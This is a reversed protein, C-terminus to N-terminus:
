ALYVFQCNSHEKIEDITLSTSCKWSCGIRKGYSALPPRDMLESFRSMEEKTLPEGKYIHPPLFVVLESNDEEIVTSRFLFGILQYLSVVIPENGRLSNM